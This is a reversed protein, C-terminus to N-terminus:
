SCSLRWQPCSSQAPKNLSSRTSPSYFMLCLSLLAATSNDVGHLPSVEPTESCLFFNDSCKIKATIKSIQRADNLHTFITISYHIQSRFFTPGNLINDALIHSTFSDFRWYFQLWSCQMVDTFCYEEYDDGNEKRCHQVHMKQTSWFNLVRFCSPFFFSKLPPSLRLLYYFSSYVSSSIM